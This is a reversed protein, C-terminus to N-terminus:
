SHKGILLLRLCALLTLSIEKGLVYWAHDFNHFAADDSYAFALRLLFLKLQEKIEDDAVRWAKDGRQGTSNHMHFLSKSLDDGWKVELGKTGNAEWIDDVDIEAGYRREWAIGKVEWFLLDVTWGISNMNKEAWKM